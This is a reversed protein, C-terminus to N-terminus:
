EEKVSYGHAKFVEILKKRRQRERVDPRKNYARKIEKLKKDNKQRYEKQYEKRQEEKTMKEEAM